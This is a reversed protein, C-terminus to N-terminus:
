LLVAHLNGARVLALKNGGVDADHDVVEEHLMEGTDHVIVERRLNFLVEVLNGFALLLPVLHHVVEVCGEFGSDLFGDVGTRFVFGTLALQAYVRLCASGHEHLYAAETRNYLYASGVILVFRLKGVQGLIEAHLGDRKFLCEVQETQGAHEAFILVLGDGHSRSAESWVHEVFLLVSRQGLANIRQRHGNGIGHAEDLLLTALLILLVQLGEVLIRQEFHHVTAIAGVEAVVALVVAHGLSHM